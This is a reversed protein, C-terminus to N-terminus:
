RYQQNNKAKIREQEKLELGQRVLGCCVTDEWVEIFRAVRKMCRFMDSDSLVIYVEKMDQISSAVYATTGNTQSSAKAYFNSIKVYWPLRSVDSGRMGQRNIQVTSVPVLGGAQGYVNVREQHYSYDAGASAPVGNKGKLMDQLQQIAASPIALYENGDGSPPLRTERSMNNVLANLATVDLTPVGMNKKCIEILEYPLEPPINASVVVKNNPNSYDTMFAKITSKRASKSGGTGHLMAYDQPYAMVLNNRFDLFKGKTAARAIVDSFFPQSAQHQNWNQQQAPAQNRTQYQQPTTAYPQGYQQQAPAQRQTPPTAPRQPPRQAQPPVPAQPPQPPRQVQQPYQQPQPPPAQMSQPPVPTQQQQPPYRMAPGQYQYNAM